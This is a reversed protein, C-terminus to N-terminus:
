IWKGQNPLFCSSIKRLQITRGTIVENQFLINIAWFLTIYGMNQIIITMSHRDHFILLLVQLCTVKDHKTLRNRIILRRALLKAASVQCQMSSLYEFLHSLHNSRGDSEGRWMRGESKVYKIINSFMVDLHPQTTEREGV